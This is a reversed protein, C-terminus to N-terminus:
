TLAMRPLALLDKFYQLHAIFPHLNGEFRMEGRKSLAFLDHWGPKPVPEWYAQWAACSGRVAFRWEGLLPVGRNCAKLAGREIELMLAVAGIQVMCHADLTRAQAIRWADANAERALAAELRAALAHAESTDEM